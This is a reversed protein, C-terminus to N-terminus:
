AYIEILCGKAWTNRLRGLTRTKVTMFPLETLLSPTGGGGFRVEDGGGGGGSREAGGGGGSSRGGGGAGDAM